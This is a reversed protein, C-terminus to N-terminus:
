KMNGHLGNCTVRPTRVAADLTNGFVVMPRETSVDYLVLAANGARRLCMVLGLCALVIALASRLAEGSM